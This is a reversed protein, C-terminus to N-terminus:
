WNDAWNYEYPAVSHKWPNWFSSYYVKAHDVINEIPLGTKELNAVHGDFFALTASGPIKVSDADVVQTETFGKSHPFAIDDAGGVGGNLTGKSEMLHMSKSPAVVRGLKGMGKGNGSDICCKSNMAIAYYGKNPTRSPCALSSDLMGIYPAGETIGLYGRLLGMVAGSGPTGTARTGYWAATATAWRDTNFAPTPWGDNDSSYMGAASAIQKFNNICTAVRGRERASNLAPLLIAALIAIIAIVVLLEILTFGMSKRNRVSCSYHKSTRQTVHKRVSTGNM